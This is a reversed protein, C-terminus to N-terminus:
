KRQLASKRNWFHRIQINQDAESDETPILVRLLRQENQHVPSQCTLVDDNLQCHDSVKQSSITYKHHAPLTEWEGTKIIERKKDSFAAIVRQM